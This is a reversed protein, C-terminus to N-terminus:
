CGVLTYNNADPTEYVGAGGGDLFAKGVSLTDKLAYGEIVVVKFRPRGFKTTIGIIGHDIVNWEQPEGDVVKVHTSNATDIGGEELYVYNATPNCFPEVWNTIINADPGGISIISATPFLLKLAHSNDPFVKAIKGLEILMEAIANALDVEEQMPENYPPEDRFHSPYIILWLKSSMDTIHEEESM